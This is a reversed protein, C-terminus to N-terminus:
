CMHSYYPPLGQIHLSLLTTPNKPHVMLRGPADALVLADPAFALLAPPHADALVLADPAM